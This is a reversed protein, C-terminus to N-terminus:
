RFWPLSIRGSSRARTTTLPVEQTTAPNGAKDVCSIVLKFETVGPPLIVRVLGTWRSTTTNRETYSIRGVRKIFQGGMTKLDVIIAGIDVSDPASDIVDFSVGMQGNPVVLQNARPFLVLIEPSARDLIVKIEKTESNGALDKATIKITQEGDQQINSPDWLVSVNNGGGTNNPIDEDNVTVRWEEMNLEQILATIMVPSANIFSNTAPSFDVIEPKTTDLTVQLTITPLPSGGHTSTITIDYLGEPFSTGPNWTASGEGNGEANPEIQVVPLTTSPNGGPNKEIKVTVRVQQSIGTARFRFTNSTGVFDGDIPSTLTLTQAFASSSFAALVLTLLLNRIM